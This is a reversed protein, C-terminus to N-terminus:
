IERKGEERINEKISRERSTYDALVLRWETLNIKDAGSLTVRDFLSQHIFFDTSGSWETSWLLLNM